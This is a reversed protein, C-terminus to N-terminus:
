AAIAREVPVKVVEIVVWEAAPSCKVKVIAHIEGAVITEETNVGPGTDVYYADAPTAGYLADIAYYRQCVGRLDKNLRAFIQGRGDIQKLVYAEAVADCEHAIAMVVRSNGFWLWNPDGPGAATRYGYSRIEGYVPKALDVGMDNLAQRDADTYVQSLGLALRSIGDAGAAPANPNGARDNRSIIGAEIASYPVTVTTPSVPGPYTAWPGWVSAMRVGPLGYLGLAANGLVLPDPDDPADLLCCRKTRDVHACVATHADALTIGPALVQGPGMAYDFRDLAATISDTDVVEDDLGGALTVTLPATLPDVGIKALTVYSSRSAAWAVAADADAVTPSREVVEDDLAVTLVVGTGIAPAETAVTVDNGWTGPSAATATLSTGLDGEAPEAADGSIRSVYLAGGGESFYASVADYLLSGGSRAGFTAEYKRVSPIPVARDIPGRETAGVMFATGTDLAAAGPAADDVILVETGPRPM